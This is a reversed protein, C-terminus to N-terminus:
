TDLLPAVVRWIALAVNERSAAADIVTFCSYLGALTLFNERVREQFEKKEFVDAKGRGVVRALAEEVPLDLLVVLDPEPAWSANRSRKHRSSVCRRTVCIRKFGLRSTKWRHCPARPTMSSGHWSSRLKLAISGPM